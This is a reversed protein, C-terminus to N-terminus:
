YRAPLPQARSHYDFRQGAWCRLARWQAPFGPRWHAHIFDQSGGALQAQFTKETELPRNWYGQTISPGALWIEGVRNDPSRELTHPDVILLRQDPSAMGCSVLERSNQDQPDALVVQNQALKDASFSRISPQKGKTGGSVILTAEALGYCPYLAERRFGYPEFAAAFRELTEKRIPEAGCFAVDWSSLDLGQKQEETIKQACFDYAFNPGGSITGQYRSVAQLWRAPKQLFATPPMLTTTIGCYLTELLGGILGMDHYPPLWIIGHSQRNMGFFCKIQELNHVLNGHSVKVGKPQSTSGSTYQLFALTDGTVQPRQWQPAALHINLDQTILWTISTLAPTNALRQQISAAVESTTLAIRAQSDQAITQLRLDPRNLRPPYSPVAVMGAYLCGLFGCIYELGAPYLLLVREGPQAGHEQLLAAIARAKQDLQAYTLCGDETEGDPLFTYAVQHPLVHMQEISIDILTSYKTQTSILTKM